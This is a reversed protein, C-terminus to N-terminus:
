SFVVAVKGDREFVDEFTVSGSADVKTYRAVGGPRPVLAELNVKGVVVKAAIDIMLRGSGDPM